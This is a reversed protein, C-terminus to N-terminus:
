QSLREEFARAVEWMSHDSDFAESSAVSMSKRVERDMYSEIGDISTGAAVLAHTLDRYIDALAIAKQIEQLHSEEASM